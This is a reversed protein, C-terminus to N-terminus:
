AREKSLHEGLVTLMRALERRKVRIVRPNQVEGMHIRRRMEAIEDRLESTSKVLEEAKMKRIDEMKKM